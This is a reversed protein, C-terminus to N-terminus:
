LNRVKKGVGIQDGTLTNCINAFFDKDSLKESNKVKPEEKAVEDSLKEDKRINSLKESQSSTTVSPMEATEGVKALAADVIKEFEVLTDEDKQNLQEVTKTQGLARFKASLQELRRQKNEKALKEEAVKYEQLDVSLKSLQEKLEDCETEYANKLKEAEQFDAYLKVLEERVEKIVSLEEKTKIIEANLQEPDVDLEDVKQIVDEESKKEESPEEEAVKAEEVKEEEAPTEEVSEEVPTEVIEEQKEEPAIEVIEEQLQEKKKAM